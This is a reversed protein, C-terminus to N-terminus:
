GVATFLAHAASLVLPTLFVLGEEEACKGMGAGWLRLEVGQLHHHSNCLATICSQMVKGGQHGAQRGTHGKTRAPPSPGYCGDRDALCMEPGGWWMVTLHLESLINVPGAGVEM